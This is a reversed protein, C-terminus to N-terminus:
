AWARVAGLPPHAYGALRGPLLQGCAAGSAPAGPPLVLPQPVPPRDGLGGPDSWPPARLRGQSRARHRDGTDWSQRPRLGGQHPLRAVALLGVGRGPDEGDGSRGAAPHADQTEVGAQAPLCGEACGWEIEQTHGDGGDWGGIHALTRVNEYWDAESM